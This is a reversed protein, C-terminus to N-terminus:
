QEMSAFKLCVPKNLLIDQSTDTLLGTESNIAFVQIKNDDRSAVLLFKGNPTIAFNRPHRATLQYGVKKLKGDDPNISFIAIGDAKLRNSTYLFRGDPSVHIDASGRAGVTDSAITQKIKLYGDNYDYVIVEGSLEGLLYVYEEGPHFDFHRPGTGPPTVFAILTSESIAPQGEFVAEMAEMRYIKDTGLDTAFLYKGDPSYRVCHVHPSKQRVTDPGSGKFRILSVLESLGGDSKVQFSSISGGGYNATHVNKGKKDITIYCPGASQTSQSNIPVLRGTKKDFSFAYAAGDGEDNEGVSYVFKENPSLTLYSPNAVETVSVEESEGTETNFRYVYIGK